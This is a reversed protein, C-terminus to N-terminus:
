MHELYLDMRLVKKIRDNFRKQIESIKFNTETVIDSVGNVIKPHYREIYEDLDCNAYIFMAAEDACGRLDKEVAIQLLDRGISHERSYFFGFNPLICMGDSKWSYELIYKNAENKFEVHEPETNTYFEVIGDIPNRLHSYLPIQVPKESLYKYFTPDLERLIYCDWDIFM